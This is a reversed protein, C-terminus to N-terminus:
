HESKNVSFRWCNVLQMEHKGIEAKSTGMINRSRLRWEERLSLAMNSM